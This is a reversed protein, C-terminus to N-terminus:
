LGGAWDRVEFFLATDGGGMYVFYLLGGIPLLVQVLLLGGMHQLFRCSDSVATSHCATLCHSYEGVDNRWQIAGRTCM